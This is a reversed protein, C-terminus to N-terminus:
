FTEKSKKRSRYVIIGTLGSVIAVFMIIGRSVPLYRTIVIPLDTESILGFLKGIEGFFALLTGTMYDFLSLIDYKLAVGTFLSFSLAKQKDILIKENIIGAKLMEWLDVSNLVLNENIVGNKILTDLTLGNINFTSNILGYRQLTSITEHNVTLDVNILGLAILQKLTLGNITYDQDIIGAAILDKATMSNLLFNENIVGARVLDFITIGDIGMQEIVSLAQELTMDKTTAIALNETLDGSRSFVYLNFENVGFVSNILGYIYEITETEENYNGFIAFLPNVDLFINIATTKTTSISCVIEINGFRLIGWNQSSDITLTPAISGFYYKEQLTELWGDINILQYVTGYESFTWVNKSFLSYQVNISEYKSITFTYSSEITTTPAVSVFFNKEISFAIMSSTTFLPNADAYRKLSILKGTNITLKTSISGYFDEENGTDNWLHLLTSDKQWTNQSSDATQIGDLFRITFTSADLYSSVSVNNWQNATLNMVWNWSSSHWVQIQLDEAGSFPGAFICLQENDYNTTLGTWQEELDLRYNTSTSSCNTIICDINWSDQDGDNTKDSDIIRITYTSATLNTATFNNWLNSVLNGLIYWTTDSSNWEYAILYENGTQNATQVYICVNETTEDYDASTWQYEFDLEYDDSAVQVKVILVDDIWVNESKGVTSEFSIHFDSVFYASDTVNATYEYWTDDDGLDLTGIQIYQTGDWYNLYIDSPETDDHCYWFEIYIEDADSMDLDDSALYGNHTEDSYADYDGSHPDASGGSGSGYTGILWSTAENDNWLNFNQAEFGDTLMTTEGGGVGGLNEEQLNMYDSDPVYDQANSPSTETGVDASSDVDSSTSNFYQIIENYDPVNAETLTDNTLDPASQQSSFSSQTGIDSSSDVDSTNNDVYEEIDTPLEGILTITATSLELYVIDLNGSTSNYYAYYDTDETKQVGGVSLIYNESNWDIIHFATFNQETDVDTFVFSVDNGSTHTFDFTGTSNNRGDYSLGSVSSISPFADAIEDDYEDVLVYSNATLDGHVVIGFTIYEKTGDDWTFVSTHKANFFDAANSASQIDGNTSNIISFFGLGGYTGNYVTLVNDTTDFDTGTYDLVDNDLFDSIRAGWENCTFGIGANNTATHNLFFIRSGAYASVEWVYNIAGDVISTGTVTFCVRTDSEETIIWTCATEYSNASFGSSNSVYGWFGKSDYDGTGNMLLANNTVDYISSFVMESASITFNYGDTGGNWTNVVTIESGSESVSLTPDVVINTLPGYGYSGTLLGYLGQINLIEFHTSTGLSLLDNWNWVIGLKKYNQDWFDVINNLTSIKQVTTLDIQVDTEGNFYHIYRFDQPSEPYFIFGFGTDQPTSPLSINVNIKCQGTSEYCRISIENITLEINQSNVYNDYEYGSFIGNGSYYIETYNGYENQGQRNGLTTITDVNRLPVLWWRASLRVTVVPILRAIYNGDKTFGIDGRTNKSFGVYETFSSTLLAHDTTTQNIKLFYWNINEGQTVNFTSNKQKINFNSSEFDQAFALPSFVTLMLTSIILYVLFFSVPNRQM